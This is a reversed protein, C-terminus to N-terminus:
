AKNGKGNLYKKWDSLAAKKGATTLNNWKTKKEHLTMPLRYGRYDVYTMVSMDKDIEKQATEVVKKIIKKKNRSRFYASLLSGCVVIVAVTLISILIVVM